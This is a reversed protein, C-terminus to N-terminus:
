CDMMRIQLCPADMKQVLNWTAVPWHAINRVVPKVNKCPLNQTFLTDNIHGLSHSVMGAWGATHSTSKTRLKNMKYSITINM